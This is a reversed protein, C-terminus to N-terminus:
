FTIQFQVGLIMYKGNDISASGDTKLEGNDYWMVEPRISFGKALAIPVSVGYMYTTTEQEFGTANDRKTSMSGFNVHPTVPGFKYSLDVWYGLTKANNMKGTTTNLGAAALAVATNGYAGSGILSRSNLWNQGYNVEAAFGFPGFGAKAGLSGILTDLDNNVGAPMANDVTRHQYLIGPYIQVPGAYIPVGVTIMPIKSNTHITPETVGTNPDTYLGWPGPTGGHPDSLAVALRAVKGFKFTGRVQPFRGSYYEGYG